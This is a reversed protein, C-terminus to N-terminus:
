KNELEIIRTELDKIKDYQKVVLDKLAFFMVSREIGCTDGEKYEITTNSAKGAVECAVNEKTFDEHAKTSFEDPLTTFDIHPFLMKNDIKHRINDTRPKIQKFLGAIADMTMHSFDACSTESQNCSYIYGVEYVSSGIDYVNGVTPLLPFRDGDNYFWWKTSGGFQFNIGTGNSTLTIMGSSTLSDHTHSCRQTAGHSINGVTGTFNGGVGVAQVNTGTTIVDGSIHSDIVSHANTGINTLNLHNVKSSGDADTHQHVAASILNASGVGTTDVISDLQTYVIDGSLNTFPIKVGNAGTGSHTHSGVDVGDVTSNTNLNATLTLGIFTPSVSTTVSQNIYTHDAGTSTKHTDFATKLALVDVGDVNGTVTINGNVNLSTLTLGNFTPSDGIKVPQDAGGVFVWQAPSITTAEINDLQSWISTTIVSSGVNSLQSWIGTTIVSTGINSLQQLEANNIDVSTGKIGYGVLELDKEIGGEHLYNRFCRQVGPNGDGADDTNQFVILDIRGPRKLSSQDLLDREFENTTGM